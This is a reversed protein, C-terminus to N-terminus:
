PKTEQYHNIETGNDDNQTFDFVTKSIKQYNFTNIEEQNSNKEFYQHQNNTWWTGNYSLRQTRGQMIFVSIASFTGNDHRTITRSKSMKSNENLATKNSWTGILEKDILKDNELSTKNNANCNLLVICSTLLNFILLKM